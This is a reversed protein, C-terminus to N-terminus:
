FALRRRKTFNIYQNDDATRGKTQELIQIPDYSDIGIRNLIAKKLARSEPFCREAIFNEFDEWTPNENVGFARKMIDDTRNIIKVKKHEYDVYIETCVKQRFMFDLRMVYSDSLPKNLYKSITQRSVGFREAIEKTTKGNKQMNVAHEIDKESLAKKRGGRLRGAIKRLETEDDTGFLEICLKQYDKM